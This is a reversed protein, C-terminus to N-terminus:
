PAGAEEESAQKPLWFWVTTGRGPGPSEAGIRGGHQAVIGRSIYLGLGMGAVNQANSARGFPEFIAEAEGPPLGIGQDRVEFRVGEMEPSASVHITSGRDSYKAANGILNVLVQEIRHADARITTLGSAVKTSFRRGDALHSGHRSLVERVLMGPEVDELHLSLRGTRLRSVDLLDQVLFNLRDAAANINQLSDILKAEELRGRTHARLVMQAHGKITTVPTRLEHSAISLFQDRSATAEEAEARAQHEAAFLRANELATNAHRRLEEICARDEPTDSLTVRAHDLVRDVANSVADLDPQAAAFDHMADALLQRRQEEAKQDTIDFRLGVVRAPREDAGPIVRGSSRM